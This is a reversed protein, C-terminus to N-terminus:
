VVVPEDEDPKDYKRIELYIDNIIRQQTPSIKPRGAIVNVLIEKTDAIMRDRQGPNLHKMDCINDLRDILKITFAYSTMSMMKMSLYQTKGLLEIMQNDSTLEEVLAAIHLGFDKAIQEITIGGDEVVDHLIMACCIMYVNNSDEKLGLLRCVARMPHIIYPLKSGKRIQGRHAVVALEFAKQLTEATAQM